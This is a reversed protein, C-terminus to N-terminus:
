FPAERSPLSATSLRRARRKIHYPEEEYPEVDSTVVVTPELPLVPKPCFYRACVLHMIITFMIGMLISVSMVIWLGQAQSERVQQALRDHLLALQTQSMRLGHDVQTSLNHDQLLFQYLKMESKDANKLLEKPVEFTDWNTPTILPQRPSVISFPSEITHHRLSLSCGGAVNVMSVQPIHRTLLTGNVCMGHATFSEPSYVAFTEESAQMVMEREPQMHVQCLQAIATPLQGMLAGICSTSFDTQTIVPSSCIYVHNRRLCHDLDTETLVKHHREPGMAILSAPATIMTVADKHNAIPFPHYRYISWKQRHRTAPVHIILVLEDKNHIFSVDTQFYDSPFDTLPYINRAAAFTKVKRHLTEMQETTFWGSHLRHKHLSDVLDNWQNLRRQLHRIIATWTLYRSMLVDQTMQGRMQEVLHNIRVNLTNIMENKLEDDQILMETDHYQSMSQVQSATFVGLFTGLVGGLILGILFPIFRKHRRGSIMTPDMDEPQMGHGFHNPGNYATNSSQKTMPDKRFLTDQVGNSIRPLSARIDQFQEMMMKIDHFLSINTKKGPGDEYHPFIYMDHQESRKPQYYLENAYKSSARTVRTEEILADRAITFMSELQNLDIPVVVHLYSADPIMDGVHEFVTLHDPPKLADSGPLANTLYLAMTVLEAASLHPRRLSPRRRPPPTPSRRISEVSSDDSLM